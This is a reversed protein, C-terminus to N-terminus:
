YPVRRFIIHHSCLSCQYTLYTKRLSAVQIFLVLINRETRYLSTKQSERSEAWSTSITLCLWVVAAITSPKLVEWPAWRPAASRRDKIEGFDRRRDPPMEAPSVRSISISKHPLIDSTEYRLRPWRHISKLEPFNSYIWGDPRISVGISSTM